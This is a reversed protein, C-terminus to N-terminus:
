YHRQLDVPTSHRFRHRLSVAHFVPTPWVASSHSRVAIKDGLLEHGTLAMFRLLLYDLFADARYFCFEWRMQDVILACLATGDAPHRERGICLRGWHFREELVDPTCVIRSLRGVELSVSLLCSIRAATM